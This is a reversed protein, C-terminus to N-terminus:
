KGFVQKRFDARTMAGGKKGPRPAPANAAKLKAVQERAPSEFQPQVLPKKAPTNSAQAQAQDRHANAQKHAYATAEFADSVMEESWPTGAPYSNSITQFKDLFLSWNKQDVPIKNKTFLGHATKSVFDAMQDGDAKARAKSQEIAAKKSDYKSKNIERQYNQNQEYLERERPTMADLERHRKALIKAAELVPFELRELGDLLAEGNGRWGQIMEIFENKDTTYEEKEKSLAQLKQTYDHHLMAERRAKSLPSEWEQDGNKMKVQIIDHLEDPLRGESLAQVIDKLDLGHLQKFQKLDQLWTLDEEVPEGNEDVDQAALEPTSDEQYENGDVNRNEVPDEHQSPAAEMDLEPGNAIRDRMVSKFNRASVANGTSTKAPASPTSATPASPAAAGTPASAGTNATDSM